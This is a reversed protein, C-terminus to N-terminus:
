RPCPALPMPRPSSRAGITPQLYRRNGALVTAGEYWVLPEDLGWGHVYRRLLTGSGNHEAILRDGDHVFRTVDSSASV